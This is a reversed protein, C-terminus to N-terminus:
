RPRGLAQPPGRVARSRPTVRQWTGASLARNVRYSCEWAPPTRAAHEPTVGAHLASADFRITRVCM